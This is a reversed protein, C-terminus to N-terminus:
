NPSLWRGIVIENGYFMPESLDSPFGKDTFCFRRMVALVASLCYLSVVLLTFFVVVFIIQRKPKIQCMNEFDELGQNNFLQLASYIDM